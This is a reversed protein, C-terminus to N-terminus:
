LNAQQSAKKDDEETKLPPVPRPNKIPLKKLRKRHKEHLRDNWVIVNDFERKTVLVQDLRRLNEREDDYMVGLVYLRYGEIQEICNGYM